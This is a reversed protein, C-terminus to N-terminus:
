KISGGFALGVLYAIIGPYGVYWAIIFGFCAALAYIM